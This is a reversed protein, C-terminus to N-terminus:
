WVYAERIWRILAYAEAFRDEAGLVTLVVIRRENPALTPRFALAITGRAEDTFGTKGAIIGPVEELLENTTTLRRPFSGDSRAITAEKSALIEQLTTNQIAQELLVSVDHATSFHGDADLGHANVFHTQSLGFAQTIQSLKQLVSKEGGLYEVFAEAADNSSPVLLAKMLENRQLTEGVILNGASGEIGVASQTILIEVDAPIEKMVVLATALKTLSAIPLQDNEHFALLVHHSPLIQAYVARAGIEINPVSSIREPIQWEPKIEAQPLAGFSVITASADFLVDTPSAADKTDSEANSTGEVLSAQSSGFYRGVIVAALLLAILFFFRLSPFM